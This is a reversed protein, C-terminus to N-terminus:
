IANGFPYCVTFGGLLADYVAHVLEWSRRFTELRRGITDLVLRYHRHPVLYASLKPSGYINNFRDTRSSHYLDDGIDGSHICIPVHPVSHAHLIGYIEGEPKIGELSVRWSDKILVRRQRQVDYAISTRTWRGAPVGPRPRPSEIIYCSPDRSQSTNPISLSLLSTANALEEVKERADRQQDESAATVTIDCGRAQSTAGKFQILFDLIHGENHSIPATVVAGARDWRIIRSYERFVLILFLHTRYQSSLIWTAYATIQGAVGRATSTTNM